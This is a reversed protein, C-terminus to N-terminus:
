WRPDNISAFQQLRGHIRSTFLHKNEQPQERLFIRFGGHMLQYHDDSAAQILISNDALVIGVSEKCTNLGLQEATYYHLFYFVSIRTGKVVATISFLLSLLLNWEFRNFFVFQMLNLIGTHMHFGNIHQKISYILLTVFPFTENYNLLYVLKELITRRNYYNKRM